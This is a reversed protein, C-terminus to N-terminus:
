AANTVSPIGVEEFFRIWKKGYESEDDHYMCAVHPYLKKVIHLASTRSGILAKAGTDHLFLIELPMNQPAIEVPCNTLKKLIGLANADSPHLKFRPRIAIRACYALASELFYRYYGADTHRSHPLAIIAHASANEANANKGAAFIEKLRELSVPLESSPLRKLNDRLLRPYFCRIESLAPHLGVEHAHKWDFGFALKRKLIHTLSGPLIGRPKYLAIGDELLVFRPKRLAAVPLNLLAQSEARLDHFLYITNATSAHQKRLRAANRRQILTSQVLNSGDAAGPVFELQINVPLNLSSAFDHM